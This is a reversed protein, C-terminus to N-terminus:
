DERRVIGQAYIQAVDRSVKEGSAQQPCQSLFMDRVSQMSPVPVCADPTMTGADPMMTGADPMMTRALKLVKSFLFLLVYKYDIDLVYDINLNYM